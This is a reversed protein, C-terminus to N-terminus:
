WVQDPLICGAGHLAESDQVVQLMVCEVCFRTTYWKSRWIRLVVYVMSHGTACCRAAHQLVVYVVGLGTTDCISHQTRFYFVYWTLDQLLVYVVGLGTASCISHRTKYYLIYKKSDQLIFHLLLMSHELISLGTSYFIFSISHQTRYCLM